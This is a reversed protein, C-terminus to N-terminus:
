PTFTGNRVATHVITGNTPAVDLGLRLTGGTRSVTWIGSTGPQLAWRADFGSVGSLDPISIDYGTALSAYAATMAATVITSAGQQYAISTLHDYVTSPPFVARLRLPSATSVVSLAPESIAPGLALTQDGPSRFYITTERLSTPQNAVPSSTATLTQLDTAALQASPVADYPRTTANQADTRFSVISQSNATLLTTHLIAGEPGVGEITVNAVAPAFSEASHFDLVPITAGDPLAPTRRLIMRTLSTVNDIRTTRTALISQPGPVLGGLVFSRDGPAIFASLLASASVRAGENTDLGAISGLLTTSVAPLCHSPATDGVATLEAPAGYWVALTTLGNGFHRAAAIAGHNATFDHRFVTKHGDATPLAQAWAGEGDQFAVWAPELGACFPVEITTASGPGGNERQRPASTSDSCAALIAFILIPRVVGLRQTVTELTRM